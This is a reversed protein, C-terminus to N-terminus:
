QRLFVIGANILTTSITSSYSRPLYPGMTQLNGFCVFNSNKQSFRLTCLYAFCSPKVCLNSSYFYVYRAINVPHPFRPTNWSQALLRAKEIVMQINVVFEVFRLWCRQTVCQLCQSAAVKGSRVCAWIVYAQRLVHTILILDFRLNVHPQWSIFPIFNRLINITCIVTSIHNYRFLHYYCQVASEESVFEISVFINKHKESLMETNKLYKKYCQCRWIYNLLDAVFAGSFSAHLLSEDRNCRCAAFVQRRDVQMIVM